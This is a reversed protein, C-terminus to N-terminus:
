DKLLMTWAQQLIDNWVRTPHRSIHRRFEKDYSYVNEWSYSMSATHITHNYQLLETAKDPYRTTLINSFVRFAQEWKIYSMVQGGEKDCVPTLFTQGNKVTFELHSDESSRNKALLKNFDVYEFNLIKRKLHNDVHSDIMQYNNDMLVINQINLLTASRGEIKYMRAQQNESERVSDEAVEKPTKDKPQKNGAFALLINDTEDSIDLCEESSSSIKRKIPPSNKDVSKCANNVFTDIQEELEPALQQVARKYIMVESASSLSSFDKGARNARMTMKDTKKPTRVKERQDDKQTPRLQVKQDEDQSVDELLFEEIEEATM